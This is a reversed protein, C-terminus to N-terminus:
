LHIETSLVSSLLLYASDHVETDHSRPHQVADEPYRLGIYFTYDVHSKRDDNNNSSSSSNQRM